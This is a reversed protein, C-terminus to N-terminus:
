RNLPAGACGGSLEIRAVCSASMPRADHVGCRRRPRRSTRAAPKAGHAPDIAPFISDGEPRAHVRTIELATAARGITQGFLEGGGIVMIDRGRAALRRRAGGHAGCRPEARGVVGPAAFATDRTVVINTRGPLPKGIAGYTKRGMVVPHGLTLARFHQLDSPLRWPLSGDRGIVGNEAVAAVLVIVGAEPSSVGRGEGPHPSAPRLGRRLFGRLPLRVPRDGRSQAAAAAAERPLRSLQLRAQELHDLYLHADGFSHVFDGAALGTVQAVMMTLMAYSAINFPVGLFVDASRQYLQCSLKGTPSM